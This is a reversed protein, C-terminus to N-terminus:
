PAGRKLARHQSSMPAFPGGGGLNSYGTARAPSIRPSGKAEKLAAARAADATTFTRLRMSGRQFLARHNVMAWYRRHGSRNEHIEIQRGDVTEIKVIM